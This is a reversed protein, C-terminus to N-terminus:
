AWSPEAKKYIPMILYLIFFALSIGLLLQYQNKFDAYEQSAFEGKELQELKQLFGDFGDSGRTIEFYAGGGEEAIDQLTQHELKTTVIKGQDDRKYGKLESNKGYIPITGGSRTGIGITFITVNEKKLANLAQEFSEGQNEGDSVILLVRTAGSREEELSEFAERATEMATEFNTTTSPMQDSEAINLFLRLASYDLTMPSQLYAEGTFVLLGVRDGKLQDVMRRIEYKAKDLRSPRIDEANMSASLDLAVMLDVGRRKVERVQTGVKPGALALILFSIGLLLFASRFKQKFRSNGLAVQHWVKSSFIRSIKDEDRRRLWISVLILM